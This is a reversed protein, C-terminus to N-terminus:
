TARRGRSTSSWRPRGRAAPLRSTVPSSRERTTSWSFPRVIRQDDTRDTLNALRSKECRHFLSVTLCPHGGLIVSVGHEQEAIEFYRKRKSSPAAPGEPGLKADMPRFPERVFQQQQRQRQYKQMEQGQYEVARANARALRDAEADAPTDRRLGATETAVRHDSPSPGARRLRTAM